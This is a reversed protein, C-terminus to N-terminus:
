SPFQIYESGNEKRRRERQLQTKRARAKAKADDKNIDNTTYKTRKNSPEIINSTTTINDTNTTSRIRKTTSSLSLPECITPTNNSYTTHCSIFNGCM